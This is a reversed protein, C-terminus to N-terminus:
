LKLKLLVIIKILQMYYIIQLLLPFPFSTIYQDLKISNFNVLDFYFAHDIQSYIKSLKSKNFDIFDTGEFTKCYFQKIVNKSDKNSLYILIDYLKQDSILWNIAQKTIESDKGFYRLLYYHLLNLDNHKISNFLCAYIPLYFQGNYGVEGLRMVTKTYLEFPELILQSIIQPQLDIKINYKILLLNTLLTVPFPNKGADDILQLTKLPLYSLILVKVDNVLMM